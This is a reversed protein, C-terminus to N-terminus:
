TEKKKRKKLVERCPGYGVGQGPTVVGEVYRVVGVEGRRNSPSFFYCVCVPCLCLYHVGCALIKRYNAGYCCFSRVPISIHHHV